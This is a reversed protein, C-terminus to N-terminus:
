RQRTQQGPLVNVQQFAEASDRGRQPRFPSERKETLAEPERLLRQGASAPPIVLLDDESREKVEEESCLDLTDMGKKQGTWYSLEERMLLFRRREVGLKGLKKLGLDAETKM